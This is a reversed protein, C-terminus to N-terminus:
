AASLATAAAASSPKVLLLDCDLPTEILRSTLTGVLATMAKRHTLAGLVLMEYSRRAVFEPIATVPDGKVIHAESLHVNAAAARSVLLDRAADPLANDFRAAYLVELSAGCCGSICDAALLVTRTLEPSEDGSIDVAAAVAPKSKWPKGRTLLLPAPCTRVLDSDSVSFTCEGAAGIGRVVLDPKSREVKRRVAEYLPTEYVVEMSVSVDHADLSVWLRDMWARLNALGSRRVADTGGADYQHQLEYAREAECLFVDIRANFRRALMVARGLVGSPDGERALVVLIANIPKM